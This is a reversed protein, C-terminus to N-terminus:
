SCHFAHNKVKYARVIGQLVRLAHTPSTLSKILNKRVIQRLVAKRAPLELYKYAVEAIRPIHHAANRSTNESHQNRIFLIEPSFSFRKSLEIMRQSIRINLVWDDAILGEDFLVFDTLFSAKLTLGQIFILPVSHTVHSHLRIPDKSYLAAFSENSTTLGVPNGCRMNVGLSYMAVLDSDAELEALHSEFRGPLFEDDGALFAIYDGKSLAILANLNKSISRIGEHANLVSTICESYRGTYEEIIRATGDSSGDDCIIIEIDFQDNRQALIRKLCKEIYESQNYSIVCVSVKM